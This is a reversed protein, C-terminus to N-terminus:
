GDLVVNFKCTFSPISGDELRDLPLNQFMEPIDFEKKKKDFTIWDSDRLKALYMNIDSSANFRMSQMIYSVARKDRYKTVGKNYLIVLLILFKKVSDPPIPIRYTTSYFDIIIGVYTYINKTNFEERGLSVNSGEM